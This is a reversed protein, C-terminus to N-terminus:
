ACREECGTTGLIRLPRSGATSALHTRGCAQRELGVIEIVRITEDETALPVESRNRVFGRDALGDAESVYVYRVALDQRIV